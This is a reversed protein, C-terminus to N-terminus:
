LEGEALWAEIAELDFLVTNARKIPKPFGSIQGWRWLTTRSISLAACVDKYRGYKTTFLKAPSGQLRPIIENAIQTM